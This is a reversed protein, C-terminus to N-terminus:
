ISPKVSKKQLIAECVVLHVSFFLCTEWLKIAVVTAAVPTTRHFFINKFIECFEFQYIKLFVMKWLAGWNAAEALLGQPISQKWFNISM